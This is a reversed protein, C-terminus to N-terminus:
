RDEVRPGEPPGHDRAATGPTPDTRPRRPAASAGQPPYLFETAVVETGDIGPGSWRLAIEAMGTSQFFEVRIPYVRGPQLAIRGSRERPRGRHWDDILLEGDIRLCVGDDHRLTFTYEGAAPPRLFGTWRASFHHRPVGAPFACGRKKFVTGDIRSLIPTEFNVGDFYEGRLGTGKRGAAIAARLADPSNRLKEIEAARGRAFETAGHAAVFADLADLLARMQPVRYDERMLTAVERTWAREALSERYEADLTALRASWREHLPHDKAAALATRAAGIEGRSIALVAKAMGADPGEPEIGALRALEGRALDVFAVPHDLAAGRAFRVSLHLGEDTLERLTGKVTRGVALRLEVKQGVLSKVAGHQRKQLEVLRAALRAAEDLGAPMLARTEDDIRARGASLGAAARAYRGELLREDFASLLREYQDRAAKDARMRRRAALDRQEQALRARMEAVEGALPAFDVGAAGALEDLGKQPEGERSRKTAAAIAARIRGTAEGALEARLKKLRGDVEGRLEEPFEDLASLAGDYDGGAALTASGARREEFARDAASARDRELASVAAEIRAAYASGEAGDRLAAFGAIAATYEHPNQASFAAAAEYGAKLKALRARERARRDWAGAPPVPVRAVHPPPAIKPPPTEGGRTLVVALSGVGLGAMSAGLAWALRSGRPRAAKAKPDSSRRVRAAAPMAGTPPRGRKPEPRPPSDPAPAQAALEQVILDSVEMTTGSREDESMQGYCRACIHEGAKVYHRGEEITGPPIM